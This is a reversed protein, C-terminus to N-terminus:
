SFIFLSALVLLYFLYYFTGVEDELQANHFELDEIRKSAVLMEKLCFDLDRKMEAIEAPSKMQLSNRYFYEKTHIAEMQASLPRAASQPSTVVSPALSANGSLPSSFTNAISGHRTASVSRGSMGVGMGMGMGSGSSLPPSAPTYSSQRSSVQRRGATVPLSMPRASPSSVSAGGGGGGGGPSSLPSVSDYHPVQVLPPPPSTTRISFSNNGERQEQAAGSSFPPQRSQARGNEENGTGEVTHHAFQNYNSSSPRDSTPNSYTLPGEQIRTYEPSAQASFTMAAGQGEVVEDYQQEGYCEERQEQQEQEQPDQEDQSYTM